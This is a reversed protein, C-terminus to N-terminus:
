DNRSRRERLVGSWAKATEELAPSEDELGIGEPLWQFNEHRHQTWSDCEQFVLHRELDGDVRLCLKRLPAYYQNIYDGVTMIQFMLSKAQSM